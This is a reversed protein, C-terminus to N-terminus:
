PMGGDRPRRGTGAVAHGLLLGLFVAVLGAVLSGALYLAAVGAEGAALLDHTELMATSFTTYGGLVGVGLLPRLYRAEPRWRALVVVLVALLFSGSVNVLFTAWPFAPVPGGVVRGLGWRALSGACGGAAVVALIDARETLLVRVTLRERPGSGPGSGPGSRPV